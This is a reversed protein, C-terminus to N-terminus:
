KKGRPLKGSGAADGAQVAAAALAALTTGAKKEVHSLLGACVQSSDLEIGEKLAEVAKGRSAARGKGLFCEILVIEWMWHKARAKAGRSAVVLAKGQKKEAWKDTAKM